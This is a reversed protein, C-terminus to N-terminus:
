REFGQWWLSLILENHGLSALCHCYDQDVNDWTIALKRMAGLWQRFWHQSGILLTRHCVHSLLKVVLAGAVTLINCLHNCSSLCFILWIKTGCFVGMDWGLPHAIPHRQPINTLFNVANYHYQVTSSQMIFKFIISRGFNSSCRGPALHHWLM